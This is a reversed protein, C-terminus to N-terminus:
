CKGAKIITCKEINGEISIDIENFPESNGSAVRKISRGVQRLFTGINMGKENITQYNDIINQHGLLRGLALLNNENQFSYHKQENIATSCLVKFSGEKYILGMETALNFLKTQTLTKSGEEFIEILRGPTVNKWISNLILSKQDEESTFFDNNLLICLLNFLNKKQDLSLWDIKKMKSEDLDKKIDLSKLIEYFIKLSTLPELIKELSLEEESLLTRLLYNEISEREKSKIYLIQDGESLEDVPLLIYDDVYKKRILTDIPFHITDKDGTEYEVYFEMQEKSPHHKFSYPQPQQRTSKQITNWIDILTNIEEREFEDVNSDNLLEERFASDFPTDMESKKEQTKNIHPKPPVKFRRSKNTHEISFLLDKKAINTKNESILDNYLDIQKLLQNFNLGPYAFFIVEKFPLLLADYGHSILIDKDSITHFPIPGPILLESHQVLKLPLKQIKSLDAYLIQMEYTNKSNDKDTRLGIEVKVILNKYNRDFSIRTVKNEIFSGDNRIVADYLVLGKCFRKEITSNKQKFESYEISEITKVMIRLSTDKNFIRLELHPHNESFNKKTMKIHSEQIKGDKFIVEEMKYGSQTAVEIIVENEKNILIPFPTREVIHKISNVLYNISESFSSQTALHPHLNAVIISISPIAEYKSLADNVDCFQNIKGVMFTQFLTKKSIKSTTYLNRLEYSIDRCKEIDSCLGNFIGIAHSNENSKTSFSDSIPRTTWIGNKECRRKIESPSLFSDLISPFKLINQEIKDTNKYKLHERIDWVKSDFPWDCYVVDTISLINNSISSTPIFIKFDISINAPYYSDWLIGELSLHIINPLPKEFDNKSEICFRKGLHVINIEDLDKIKELFASLGKLYPWSFHLVLKIDSTEFKHILKTLNNFNYKRENISEYIILGPNFNNLKYDENKFKLPKEGMMSSPTIDAIPISVIKPITQFAKDKLKNNVNSEYQEKFGRDGYKPRTAVDINILENTKENISGKCWLMDKYFYFSASPMSDILKKYILSFYIKTNKEFNENFQIKPIGILIDRQKQFAFICSIIPSLNLPGQSFIINVKKSLVSDLISLSIPSLRNENKEDIIIEQKGPGTTSTYKYEISSFYKQNM